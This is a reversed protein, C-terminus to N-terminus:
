AGRGRGHLACARPTLQAGHVVPRRRPHLAPHHARDAHRAQLPDHGHLGGLAHVLRARRAHRGEAQAQLRGPRHCRRALHGAAGADHPRRGSPTATPSTTPLPTATRTPTARRRRPRRRRRRRRHGDRTPTPTPTVPAGTVTVTGTMAEPHVRCLYTTSAPSTFTYSYTRRRAAAPRQTKIWDPDPGATARSTTRSRRQRQRHGVHRHRRDPDPRRAQGVRKVRTAKVTVDARPESAAAVSVGGVVAGVALLGMVARLAGGRRQVM